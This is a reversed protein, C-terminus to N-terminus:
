KMKVPYLMACFLRYTMQLQAYLDLSRGRLLFAFVFLHYALTRTGEQRELIHYVDIKNLFIGSYWRSLQHQDDVDHLNFTASYVSAISTRAHSSNASGKRRTSM